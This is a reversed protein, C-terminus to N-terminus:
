AGEEADEAPAMAFRPKRCGGSVACHRCESESAPVPAFRGARAASVLELARREIPAPGDDPDRRALEEIRARARASPEQGLDRPQTPMYSGTAPLGFREAAVVAYLPVQIASEGLSSTAARVTTKSRKYDIVRVAPGDRALDVRDISGRLLLGTDAPARAAGDDRRVVHAPWPESDERRRPGFSQEALVFNWADEALAERLVGLVADRVRLRVVTRLPAHGQWAELLDDVASLGSRVIREADRPRPRWLAVTARFAAALAEHVLTGEERADPLEHRLEADRAGLVVHAYGMFPCRAFRELGTVALARDGGGTEETVVARVAPLGPVDGIVESRPRAPDLFFAERERERAARFRSREDPAPAPEDDVRRIPTGARAIADVIPAPELPSGSADETAFALMVARSEAAAVALAALEGASRRAGPAIVRGRSYRAIADWLADSVLAERTDDRPLSGENADLLVLLDLEEGAVELLRM